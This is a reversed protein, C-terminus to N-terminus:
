FRARLRNRFDVSVGRRIEYIVENVETQLRTWRDDSPDLEAMMAEFWSLCEFVGKAYEDLKKM